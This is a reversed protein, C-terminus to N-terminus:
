EADGGILSDAIAEIELLATEIDGIEAKSAYYESIINGKGDKAALIEYDSKINWREAFIAAMDEDFMWLEEVLSSTHDAICELVVQKYKGKEYDEYRESINAFVQDGVHYKTNPKWFLMTNEETESSHLKTWTIFHLGEKENYTSDTCKYIAGNKKDFYLNGTNVAQGGFSAPAGDGYEINRNFTDDVYKKVVKNQVANESRDSMADDIQIDGLEEKVESVIEAKDADTWYEVGKEPKPGTAPIGTDVFLTQSADFVFWNGNNGIYPYRKAADETQLVYALCEEAASQAEERSAEAVNKAVVAVEEAEVARQRAQWAKDANQAVSDAVGSVNDQVSKYFAQTRSILERVDPHAEENQNHNGVVQEVYSPKVDEKDGTAFNEENVRM